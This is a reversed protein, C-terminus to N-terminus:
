KKRLIVVTGGMLVVVFAGGLLYYLTNGETIDFGGGDGSGSTTPTTPGTTETSKPMLTVDIKETVLENEDIFSVEVTFQITTNELPELSASSDWVFIAIGNEDTANLTESVNGDSTVFYGVTVPVNSYIRVTEGEQAVGNNKATVVFLIEDGPYIAVTNTQVDVVLGSTDPNVHITFDTSVVPTSHDDVSFGILIDSGVVPLPNLDAIWIFTVQGSADTVGSDSTSNSLLFRGEFESVIATVDAGVVPSDDHTVTVTLEVAEGKNVTTANATIVVTNLDPVVKFSGTFQITANSFADNIVVTVNITTNASVLPATINFVAQGNADTTLIGGNSVDAIPDTTISVIADAVTGSTGQATITATTNASPSVLDPSFSITSLSFDVPVVNVIISVNFTAGNVATFTATIEITYPLNDSPAQWMSDFRGEANTPGANPTFDASGTLNSSLAVPINELNSASSPTGAIATIQTTRGSYITSSAASLTSTSLDLPSDTIVVPYTFNGTNTDNVINVELYMPETPASSPLQWTVNFFGYVDTTGSYPTKAPISGDFTGYDSANGVATITVDSGNVFGSTGNAYVSITVQTGVQVYNSDTESLPVNDIYTVSGELLPDAAATGHNPSGILLLPIMLMALMYISKASRNVM